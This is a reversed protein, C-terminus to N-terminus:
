GSRREGQGAGIDHQLLVSGYCCVSLLSAMLQAGVAADIVGETVSFGEPMASEFSDAFTGGLFTVYLVLLIMPTILSTFFMGKDKFYLKINRSIMAGLM